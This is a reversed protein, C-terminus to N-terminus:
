PNTYTESSSNIGYFLSDHDRTHKKKLMNDRDIHEQVKKSYIVKSALILPNEKMNWIDQYNYYTIPTAEHSDIDYVYYHVKGSPYQTLSKWAMESEKTQHSDSLINDYKMVAQDLLYRFCGQKQYKSETQSYTIQYYPLERLVVYLISILQDGDFLGFYHEEDGIHDSFLYGGFATVKPESLFHHQYKEIPETRSHITIIESVFEHARM